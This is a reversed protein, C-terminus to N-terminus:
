KAVRLTVIGSRSAIPMTIKQINGEDDLEIEGTGNSCAQIWTLEILKWDDCNTYTQLGGGKYTRLGSKGSISLANQLGFGVVSRIIWGDFAIADGDANAFVILEDSLYPSLVAGKGNVSALWIKSKHASTQEDSPILVRALDMASEFQPASFTCGSIIFGLLSCYATVRLRAITTM